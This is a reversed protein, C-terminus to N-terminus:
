DKRAEAKLAEYQETPMVTYKDLNIVALRQNPDLVLPDKDGDRKIFKCNSITGRTKYPTDDEDVSSGDRNFKITPFRDFDHDDEARCRACTANGDGNPDDDICCLETGCGFCIGESGM